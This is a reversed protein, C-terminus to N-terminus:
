EKVVVENRHNLGKLLAVDVIADTRVCWISSQLVHLLELGMGDHQNECTRERIGVVRTGCDM